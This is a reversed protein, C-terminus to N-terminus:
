LKVKGLAEKVGESRDRVQDLRVGLQDQETRDVSLVDKRMDGVYAGILKQSADLDITSLSYNDLLDLASTSQTSPLLQSSTQPQLQRKTNASLALIADLDKGLDNRTLAHDHRSSTM